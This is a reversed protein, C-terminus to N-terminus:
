HEKIFSSFTNYAHDTMVMELTWNSNNGHKRYVRVIDSTGSFELKFRCPKDCDGYNEGCDCKYEKSYYISNSM